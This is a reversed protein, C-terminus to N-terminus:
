GNLRFIKEANGHLIKAEDELNLGRVIEAPHEDGMDFPYDSGVLVHEVGVYDILSRLLQSDHTVTDYYFRKLSEEPSERLKARARPQFSHAHRLRGRLALLAGGGHALIVKLNPYSEMVGAMVMHAATITTELPNGVANWLYYDDFVPLRFGRTTPHIFVVAGSAEAAAWFPLFREHGLYDGGVSAAIEVGRMGTGRMLDVLEKAALEPDQLPVTGLAIIRRPYHQALRALAENQIHSSRLGDEPSADYRLLSVWPSLVVREVGSKDQEELIREIHVFERVASRIAGGAFAIV